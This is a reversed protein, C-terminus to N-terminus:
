EYRLVTAPNMRAARTAQAAVAIWAVSITILLGAIFPAISLTTRQSFISVYVKLLVFAIPWAFANAILIPISFDKLLMIVIRQVSAGLTKRVGIEQKRRGIVHLSLGILGLVSMSFALLAVGSFANGIADFSQLSAAVLEDAFHTTLAINPALKAWVQEIEKKAAATDLKSVRIIPFSAVAPVLLYMSSKAGVSLISMPRDEVVGIVRLPIPARDDNMYQYLTKGIAETPSWGVEKALARSLVVNDTQSTSRAFRPTSIDAAHARDFVRGALIHIGLTAFFDHNVANIVTNLQRAPANESTGVAYSEGIVDWPSHLSATVSQIHPQRLLETRLVEYDVNASRLNNGVVIFPDDIASLELRKFQANQTQMAFVTIVLFTTTAFQFVVLARQTFRGGSKIAASRMAQTPRVRSLVFAPYAGACITVICLLGFLMAWFQWSAAISGVVANIGEIRAGFLGVVVLTLALSLAVLTVLAAEILFQIMIQGSRAGVVRRMGIEKARAAAQATALNAYNLCSAFLVIAGLFYFLAVATIGTTDQGIVASLSGLVYDSILIAGFKNKKTNTDAYHSGLQKLRDRLMAATFSGDKPLVAYTVFLPGTWDRIYAAKVVDNAAEAELVDMSLLVDFRVLASATTSTSMHSPQKLEDIVGRVTVDNGDQLRLSQGLAYQVGGYLKTAVSKTVIASRPPRLANYSDGTLFPLAFVQLFEPDAYNVRLVTKTEAATVPVESPLIGISAVVRAIAELEPANTRLYEATGFATSPATPSAGTKQNIMYIRDSNPYQRDGHSIYAITAYIALFCVLGITLCIVNISTTLKHQRFHRLATTLYHKFM